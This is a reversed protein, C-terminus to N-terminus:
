KLPGHNLFFPAASPSITLYCWQGLPYSVSCVWTSLSCHSGPTSCNMPNCLAPCLKAVSCCHNRLCRSVSGGASERSSITVTAVKISNMSRRLCHNPLHVYVRSLVLLLGLLHITNNQNLLPPFCPPSFNLQKSWTAYDPPSRLM